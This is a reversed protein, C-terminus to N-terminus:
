RKIKDRDEDTLRYLEATYKERLEARPSLLVQKVFRLQELKAVTQAVDEKDLYLVAYKMKRSVYQISGYKRLQKSQKLHQLYVIISQRQKIEFEM